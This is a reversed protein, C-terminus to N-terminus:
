DKNDISTCHGAKGEWAIGLESLKDIANLFGNTGSKRLWEIAEQENKETGRGDLLCIALEYQAFRQGHEAARKFWYFAKKLDPEIPGFSDNEVDLGSLYLRALQYEAIPYEAETAKKCLRIGEKHNQTVGLACSYCVSLEFIAPIYGQEAAANFLTFAKKYYDDDRNRKERRCKCKYKIGLRYQAPPFGLDASQQLLQLSKDYDSRIYTVKRGRRVEVYSLDCNEPIDENRIRMGHQYRESLWYMAVRNGEEALRDLVGFTEIYKRDRINQIATRLLEKKNDEM